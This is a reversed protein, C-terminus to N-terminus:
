AMHGICEEVAEPVHVATACAGGEEATTIEQVAVEVSDSHGDMLNTREYAKNVETLIDPANAADTGYAPNCILQLDTTPQYAENEQMKVRGKNEEVATSERTGPLISLADNTHMTLRPPITNVPPPLPRSELWLRIRMVVAIDLILVIGGIAVMGGIVTVILNAANGDTGGPGSSSTTVDGGDVDVRVQFTQFNSPGSCTYNDAVSEDMVDITLSSM